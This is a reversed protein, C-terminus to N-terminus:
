LWICFSTHSPVWHVVHCVVTPWSRMGHQHLHHTNSQQSRIVCDHVVVSVNSLGSLVPVEFGCQLVLQADGGKTHHGPPMSGPHGKCKQAAPQSGPNRHVAEAAPVGRASSPGAPRCSASEAKGNMICLCVHAVYRCQQASHTIHM